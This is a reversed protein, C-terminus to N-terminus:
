KRCNRICASTFRGIFKLCTMDIFLCRFVPLDSVQKRGHYLEMTEDEYLNEVFKYPNISIMIPGVFTYIDDREYRVRLTHILSMESFDRLKLIDEVGEDDNDTVNKADQMKLVVGDPLRVTLTGNEEKIVAAPIYFNKGLWEDDRSLDSDVVKTPDFYVSVLQKGTVIDVTVRKSTAKNQPKKLDKKTNTAVSSSKKQRAPTQM